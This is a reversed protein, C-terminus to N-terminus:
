ANSVGCLVPYTGVVVTKLASVLFGKVAISPPVDQRIPEKFGVFM